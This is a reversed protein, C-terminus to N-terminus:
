TADALKADKARCLLGYYAPLMLVVIFEYNQVCYYSIIIVNFVFRRALNRSYQASLLLLWLM